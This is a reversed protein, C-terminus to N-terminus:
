EMVLVARFRAKGATMHEFAENAKSLPFKEIMCKVGHLQSFDVCEESDLAHGSPWGCVSIGQTVMFLTDFEVPGMPPLVVFKGCPALTHMLGSVAKQDPATAVVMEAGGLAQLEKVPDQTTTDIYIHAGLQKAFDKKSSGHSLAAVKYGMRSAYQVALHGLGGLGQVAVLAGAEVHMKRMANFVTVGACMLPAAEAPDIDASLHVAAESRLMVYEAFGGDMTVGNVAENKCIQFQGRQCARCTGDHGTSLPNVTLM